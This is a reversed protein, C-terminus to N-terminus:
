NLPCRLKINKIKAIKLARSKFQDMQQIFFDSHDISKKPSDGDFFFDNDEFEIDNQFDSSTNILHYTDWSHENFNNSFEDKKNNINEQIVLLESKLDQIQQRCTPNVQETISDINQIFSDDTSNLVAQIDKENASGTDNCDLAVKDADSLVKNIEEINESEHCFVKKLDKSIEKAGIQLIHCKNIESNEGQECRDISYKDAKEYIDLALYRDDLWYDSDEINPNVPRFLNETGARFVKYLIMNEIESNNPKILDAKYAELLTQINPPSINVLNIHHNVMQEDTTPKNICLNCYQDKKEGPDELCCGACMDVYEFHKPNHYNHTEGSTHLFEHLITHKKEKLAKTESYTEDISKNIFISPYVPDNIEVAYGLSGPHNNQEMESNSLCNINIGKEVSFPIAILREYLDHGSSTRPMQSLCSLGSELTDTYLAQDETSCGQFVLNMENNLM